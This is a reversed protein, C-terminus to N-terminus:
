VSIFINEGSIFASKKFIKYPTGVLKLKKLIHSSKDIENVAGTAAIRFGLRKIEKVDNAVTQIALFGTNQPTIPGFFTMNCTVHNPTYKLYRHKLDDEIKAFMPCTQFRRWGLSIILPDSTKLTKKYWRHKKVKCSVYGVNEEAMNLGGILMPYTPDFNVVFECPLNKFNMRVYLGARYGEIQLRTDEDLGAFEKRNLDTQRQAEAKLNDYFADDGTVRHSNEKAGAKGGDEDYDADFKAKLKMKKAMLDQRTMNAEEIRSLRRKRSAEKDEIKPEDDEVDEDDSNANLKKKGLFSNYINM